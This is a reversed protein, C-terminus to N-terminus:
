KSKKYLKLINLQEQTLKKPLEPNIILYMDGKRHTNMNPVGHENVRLVSDPKSMPPIKVKVAGYLSDVILEDGLIMDEFPVQLKRIVDDGDREYLKDNKVAIFVYLDGYGGKDFNGMGSVRLRTGNQTGVPIKINTQMKKPKIGHGGCSGCPNKTVNGTGNCYNCPQEIQMIGMQRYISGRGGCQGCIVTTSNVTKGTGSCSKCKDHRTYSLNISKEKTIDKLSVSVDMKLNSGTQKQRQGNERTFFGDFGHGSNQNSRGGFFSNFIDFPDHNSGGSTKQKFASHGFQDYQSRKTEDSLVDYAESIKKFKEEANPDGKNKDPHWKVALKRYSRKIDDQSDNRNSNLISYYDEEM